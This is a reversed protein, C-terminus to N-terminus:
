YGVVPDDVRRRSGKPYDFHRPKMLLFYQTADFHHDNYKVVEEKVSGTRRNVDVRLEQMTEWWTECSQAAYLKPAGAAGERFVHKRGERVELCAHVLAMGAPKDHISPVCLLGHSRLEEIVSTGGTVISRQKAAPDIFTTQVFAEEGPLQHERVWNAVYPVTVQSEHFERYMVLVDDGWMKFACWWQVVFPNEYGFDITRFLTFAQGEPLDEYTWDRPAGHVHQDLEPFALGRRHTIEGSRRVLRKDPPQKRIFQLVQPQSLFPNDDIDAEFLDVDPVEDETARALTWVEYPVMRLVEILVREVEEPDNIGEVKVDCKATVGKKDLMRRAATFAQCLASTRVPIGGRYKGKRFPQILEDWMWDVGEAPTLMFVERGSRDTLGRSGEQRILHTPEEDWLIGDLDRGAYKMPDSEASMLVASSGTAKDVIRRESAVYTKEPGLWRNFKHLIVDKGQSFDMSCAMYRGPVPAQWFPHIGRMAMCFDKSAVETKGLRNGGFIGRVNAPSRHFALQTPSPAIRLKDISVGRRKLERRHEHRLVLGRACAFAYIELPDRSVFWELADRVARVDLHLARRAELTM